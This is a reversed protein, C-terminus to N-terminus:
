LVRRDKNKNCKFIFKQGLSTVTWRDGVPEIMSLPIRFVLKGNEKTPTMLLEDAHHWKYKFTMKGVEYRVPM